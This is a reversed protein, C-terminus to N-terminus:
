PDSSTRRPINELAKSGWNVDFIMGAPRCLHRPFGGSNSDWWRPLPSRVGIEAALVTTVDVERRSRIGDVTVSPPSPSPLSVSPSVSSSSSSLSLQDMLSGIDEDEESSKTSSILKNGGESLASLDDRGDPPVHDEQRNEDTLCGPLRDEGCVLWLCSRGASPLSLWPEEGSDPSLHFTRLLHFIGRAAVSKDRYSVLLRPECDVTCLVVSGPVGVRDMAKRQESPSHRSTLIEVECGAFELRDLAFDQFKKLQQQSEFSCVVSSRQPQQPRHRQRTGPSSSSQTLQIIQDYIAQSYSPSFPDIAQFDESGIQERGLPLSQLASSRDISHLAPPQQQKSQFHLSSSLFLKRRKRVAASGDSQVQNPCSSTDAAPSCRLLQDNNLGLRSFFPQFMTSDRQSSGTCCNDEYGLLAFMAATVAVAVSKGEGTGVAELFQRHDHHAGFQRSLKQCHWLITKMMDIVQSSHFIFLQPPNNIGCISFIGCVLPLISFLIQSLFQSAALPPTPPHTFSFTTTLSQIQHHVEKILGDVYSDQQSSTSTTTHQIQIWNSIIPQYSAQFKAIGPSLRESQQQGSDVQKQTSRFDALEEMLTQLTTQLSPDDYYSLSGEQTLQTRQSHSQVPNDKVDKMSEIVPIDLPIWSMEDYQCDGHHVAQPQAYTSPTYVPANAPEQRLSRPGQAETQSYGPSDRQAFQSQSFTKLPDLFSQSNILAQDQGLSPETHSLQYNQVNSVTGSSRNKNDKGGQKSSSGPNGRSRKRSGGGDSRRDDGDENSDDPSDDDPRHKKLSSPNSKALWKKEEAPDRRYHLVYLPPGVPKLEDM